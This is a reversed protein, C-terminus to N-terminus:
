EDLLRALGQGKVIKTPKVELDFDQIKDLWRSRRGDSDLQVFIYKIANTLVYAILKSQQVYTKFDKLDKVV